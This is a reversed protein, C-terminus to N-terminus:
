DVICFFLIINLRNSLLKLKLYDRFKHQYIIIVMYNKQLILSHTNICFM